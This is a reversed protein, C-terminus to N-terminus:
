GGGGPAPPTPRTPGDAARWACAKWGGAPFAATIEALTQAPPTGKVVYHRVRKRATSVPHTWAKHRSSVQLFFEMGLQRLGERFEASDGYVCDGLVPAPPVGDGLAQRILELGLEPKTRFPVGSPVGAEGRRERDLAWSEPLYLQGGVPAAVGGDSVVLEVSVQCHAQKGVAGCYQHSVGVSKDGQKLWGTEDVIWATLPEMVPTVEKRIMQWVEQDDWPSDALCQQLKQMDAGLRAAM